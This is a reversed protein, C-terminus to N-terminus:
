TYFKVHRHDAVLMTSYGGYHKWGLIHLRSITLKAEGCPVLPYITDGWDNKAFHVDTRCVGCYLIKITVDSIGNG